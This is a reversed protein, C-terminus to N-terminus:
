FNTTPKTNMRFVYISSYISTFSITHCYGGFFFFSSACACVCMIRDFPWQLLFYVFGFIFFVFLRRRRHFFFYIFTHFAVFAITSHTTHAACIHLLYNDNNGNACCLDHWIFYFICFFFYICVFINSPLYVWTATLLPYKTNLSTFVSFVLGFDTQNAKTCKLGIEKINEETRNIKENLKYERKLRISNQSYAIDKKRKRENESECLRVCVVFVRCIYM